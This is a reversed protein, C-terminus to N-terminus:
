ITAQQRELSPWLISKRNSAIRDDSQPFRKVLGIREVVKMNMKRPKQNRILHNGDWNMVIRYDEGHQQDWNALLGINLFVAFSM